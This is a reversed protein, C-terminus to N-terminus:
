AAKSCLGAGRFNCGVVGGRRGRVGSLVLVDVRGQCGWYLPGEVRARGAWGQGVPM